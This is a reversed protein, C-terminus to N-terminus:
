LSFFIFVIIILFLYIFLNQSKRLMLTNLIKSIDGELEKRITGITDVVDSYEVNLQSEVSWGSIQLTVVEKIMNALNELGTTFFTKYSGEM